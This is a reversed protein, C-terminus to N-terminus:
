ASIKISINAVSTFLLQMKCSKFYKGDDYKKAISKKHAGKWSIDCKITMIEAM